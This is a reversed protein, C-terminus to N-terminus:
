VGLYRVGLADGIEQPKKEAGRYPLTANYAM